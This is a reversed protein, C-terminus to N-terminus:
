GYDRSYDVQALLGSEIKNADAKKPSAGAQPGLFVKLALTLLRQDLLAFLYKGPSVEVVVAEGGYGGQYTVGIYITGCYRNAM